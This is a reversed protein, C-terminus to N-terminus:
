LWRAVLCGKNRGLRTRNTMETAIRGFGELVDGRWAGPWGVPKDVRDRFTTIKPDWCHDRRNELLHIVGLQGASSRTERMNTDKGDKKGNLSILFLPLGDDISSDAPIM